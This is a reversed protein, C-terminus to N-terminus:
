WSLSLTENLEVELIETAGLHPLSEETPGLGVKCIPSCTHTLPMDEEEISRRRERKGVGGERRKM